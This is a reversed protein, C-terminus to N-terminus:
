SPGGEADNAALLGAARLRDVIREPMDSDDDYLPEAGNCTVAEYSACEARVEAVARTRAPANDEVLLAGIEHVAATTSWRPQAVIARLGDLRAALADTLTRAQDRQIVAGAVQDRLWVAEAEAADLADLLAPVDTRAHAIFQANTWNRGPWTMEAIGGDPSV